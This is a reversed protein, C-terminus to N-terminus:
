VTLAPPKTAGLSFHFAVNSARQLPCHSLALSDLVHCFFKVDTCHVVVVGSGKDDSRSSDVYLQFHRTDIM